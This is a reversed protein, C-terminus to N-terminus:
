EKVRRGIGKVGSYTYFFFEDLRWTVYIAFLAVWCDKYSWQKTYLLKTIDNDYSIYFILLRKIAIPRHTPGLARGGLSGHM